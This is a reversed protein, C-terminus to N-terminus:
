KFVNAREVPKITIPKISESFFKRYNATLIRKDTVYIKGYDTEHRILRGIGQKFKLVAEPLAFGTFVNEKTSLLNLYPDEKYKFPLRTIVLHDISEAELDIGEWFSETGFLIADKKKKFLAKTHALDNSEHQSLIQKPELMPNVLEYVEELLRLSTFLILIRGQSQSKLSYIFEALAIPYDAENVSPLDTLAFMEVQKDLQFPTKFTYHPLENTEMIHDFYKFKDRVSLTGSIYLATQHRGITSVKHKAAQSIIKWELNNFRYELLMVIKEETYISDIMTSLALQLNDILKNIFDPLKDIEIHDCLQSFKVNLLNLANLINTYENLAIIRQNEYYHESM